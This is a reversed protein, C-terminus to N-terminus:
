SLLLFVLKAIVGWFKDIIDRVWDGGQSAYQTYGLSQMIHHCTEAYQKIGFGPQNHIGHSFGFNPLSPAVVHFAPSNGKADALIPLIKSVEYFSGPGTYYDNNHRHIHFGLSPLVALRVGTFSCCLYQM